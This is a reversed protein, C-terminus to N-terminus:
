SGFQSEGEKKEKKRFLEWGLILGAILGIAMSFLILIVRSMSWKWALFQIEVVQSNQLLFAVVVLSLVILIIGKIGIAGKNNM